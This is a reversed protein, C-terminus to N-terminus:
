GMQRPKKTGGTGPQSARAQRLQAQARARAIVVEDPPPAVQAASMDLVSPRVPRMGDVTRRTVVRRKVTTAARQATQKVNEGMAQAAQKLSGEAPETLVMAVGTVLVVLLLYNLNFFNSVAGPLLTEVLTLGLYTVLAVGFFERGVIHVPQKWVM